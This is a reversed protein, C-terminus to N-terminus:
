FPDESQDPLFSSYPPTHVYDETLEYFEYFPNDVKRQKARVIAISTPHYSPRCPKDHCRDAPAQYLIKMSKVGTSLKASAIWNLNIDVWYLKRQQHDIKMGAPYWVREEGHTNYIFPEPSGIAEGESVLRCRGIMDDSDSRPHSWYIMKDVPDVAFWRMGLVFEDKDSDLHVVQQDYMENLPASIIRRRQNLDKGTAEAWYIRGDKNPNVVTFTQWNHGYDLPRRYVTDPSPLDELTKTYNLRLFLIEWQGEIQKETTFYLQNNFRDVALNHINGGKEQYITRRSKGDFTSAIISKANKRYFLYEPDNDVGLFYVDNVNKFYDIDALLSLDGDKDVETVNIDATGHDGMFLYM